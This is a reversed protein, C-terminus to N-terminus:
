VELLQPRPLAPLCEGVFGWDGTAIWLLWAPLPGALWQVGHWILFLAVVAVVLAAPYIMATQRIRWWAVRRLTERWVGPEVSAAPQLAPNGPLDADPPAARDGTLYAARERWVPASPLM